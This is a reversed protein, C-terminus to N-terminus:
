DEKKEAYEEKRKFSISKMVKMKDNISFDYISENVIYSLSFVCSDIAMSFTSVTAITDIKYFCEEGVKCHKFDAHFLIFYPHGNMYGREVVFQVGEPNRPSTAYYFDLAENLSAITSLSDITGRASRCNYTLIFEDYKSESSSDPNYFIEGCMDGKSSQPLEYFFSPLSFSIEMNGLETSFDKFCDVSRSRWAKSKFYDNTFSEYYSRSFATSSLLLVFLIAIIFRMLSIM